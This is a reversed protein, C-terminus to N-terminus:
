MMIFVHMWQEKQWCTWFSCAGVMCSGPLMLPVQYHMFMLSQLRPAMGNTPESPQSQANTSSTGSGSSPRCGARPRWRGGVPM